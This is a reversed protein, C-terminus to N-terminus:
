GAGQCFLKMPCNQLSIPRFGDLTRVGEKKPLLVLLARNLGDMDLIGAHFESFLQQVQTCLTPWFKRYSPGFGDPGPSAGTDMAFLAQTIESTSFPEPLTQLSIDMHLCMDSLNFRWETEV